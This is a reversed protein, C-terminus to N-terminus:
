VSFGGSNANEDTITDIVFNRIEEDGIYIKFSPAPASPSTLPASASSSSSTSNNNNFSAPIGSSSALRNYVDATNFGSLLSGALGESAASVGIAGSQLGSVVGEAAYMGAEAMVRSPSHIDLTSNFVSSVMSAIDNVVKSIEAKKGDLGIIFGDGVRQGALLYEQEALAAFREAEALMEESVATGDKAALAKLESYYLAADDKQKKLVELPAYSSEIFGNNLQNIVENAQDYNGQEAMALLNSYQDIMSNQEAQNTQAATLNERLKKERELSDAIANEMKTRETWYDFSALADNGSHYLKYKESFERQAAERRGREADIDYHADSVAKANDTRSKLANDYQEKYADIYSMVTNKKIIDDLTRSIADYSGLVEGNKTILNGSLGLCSNTLANIEDIIDKVEEETGNKVTGDSNVLEMLSKSLSKVREDATEASAKSSERMGDWAKATEELAEKQKQQEETLNRAKERMENMQALRKESMDNLKANLAAVAGVAALVWGVPNSTNLAMFASKVANISSVTQKAFNVVKNVAFMAALAAGVPKAYAIIEDLNDTIWEVADQVKPIADKLMPKFMDYLSLELEEVMSELTKMEGSVNDTMTEAMTDCAGSCDYISNKLSSFDSDAANVIALLGSMGEQGAIISAYSSKEAESLGSFSVRMQQLLTDLSKMNGESDTLSIGLAEMAIAQKDTPETLNSLITRLSTGAQSAKIGSNAMLGVAVAVDEASYGLAGAVPAVYKFTEGMMSVNTNSRSSATALIDAFHGAEEAQMGFATLADTVIDSTAALDEGSAAALNLVGPLGSTMQEANWGAMAMYNLADACESSSFVTSAGYERALDTLDQFTKGAAGSVAAVKSMSAEFEMGTKTVDALASSAAAIGAVKKLAGEVGGTDVKTDFILSGDSAM